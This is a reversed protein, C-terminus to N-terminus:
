ARRYQALIEDARKEVRQRTDADLADKWSPKGERQIQDYALREAIERRLQADREWFEPTLNTKRKRTM